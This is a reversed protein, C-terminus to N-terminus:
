RRVLRDLLKHEARTESLSFRLPRQIPSCVVMALWTPQEVRKSEAHQGIRQYVSKIGPPAPNTGARAFPADILAKLAGSLKSMNRTTDKHACSSSQDVECCKGHCDASVRLMSWVCILESQFQRPNRFCFRLGSLGDRSEEGHVLFTTWPWTQERPKALM